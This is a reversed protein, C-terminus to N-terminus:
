WCPLITANLVHPYPLHRLRINFDMRLACAPYNVSVNEEWWVGIMKSTGNHRLVSFLTFRKPQEKSRAVKEGV